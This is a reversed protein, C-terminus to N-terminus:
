LELFGEDAVHTDTFLFMVQENRVGIRLYLQKLDERFAQDDYGRTLTIEFVGCGSTFAALRSLSQKGSGGVGVLLANGQALRLIRHIRTLHELADEFFVLNMHKNEKNYLGLIEEFIPKVNPFDTVDVYPRDVKQKADGQSPYFL